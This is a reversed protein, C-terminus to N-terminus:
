FFAVVIQNEGEGSLIREDERVQNDASLDLAEVLADQTRGGRSKDHRRRWPMGFATLVFGDTLAHGSPLNLQL